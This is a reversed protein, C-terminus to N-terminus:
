CAFRYYTKGRGVYAEESPEMWSRSAVDSGDGDPLVTPSDFIGMSVLLFDANTKYMTDHQAFESQVYSQSCSALFLALFILVIAKKM